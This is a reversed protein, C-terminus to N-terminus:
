AGVTRERLGPPGNALTTTLMTDPVFAIGHDMADFTGFNRISVTTGCVIEEGITEWLATYAQDLQPQPLGVKKAVKATLETDNITTM